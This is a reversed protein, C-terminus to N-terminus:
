SREYAHLQRLYMYEISIFPCSPLHFVILCPPLHSCIQIPICVSRPLIFPPTPLPHLPPFLHLIFSQLGSLFARRPPSISPSNACSSTTHLRPRNRLVMIHLYRWILCAFPLLPFCRLFRWAFPFFFVLQLVSFSLVLVVFVGCLPSFSDIFFSM